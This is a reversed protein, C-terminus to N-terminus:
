LMDKSKQVEERIMQYARSLRKTTAVLSIGLFDAIEQCSLQQTHKLIFPTKYKDPLQYVYKWPDIRKEQPEPQAVDEPLSTLSLKKKRKWDLCTNRAIRFLWRSFHKPIQLFELHCYAKFFIEQSVDEVDSSNKLVQRVYGFIGKSYRFVLEEYAKKDGGLTRQVLEEDPVM